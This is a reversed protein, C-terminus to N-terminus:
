SHWCIRFHEPYLDIVADFEEYSIHERWLLEMLRMGSQSLNQPTLASNLGIDDENETLQAEATEAAELLHQVIAKFINSLFRLRILNGDSSEGNRCNFDVSNRSNTRIGM